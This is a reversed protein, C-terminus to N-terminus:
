MRDYLFTDCIIYICICSNLLQTINNEVNLLYNNLKNNIKHKKGNYLENQVNCNMLVEGKSFRSKTNFDCTANFSNSCSEILVIHEDIM